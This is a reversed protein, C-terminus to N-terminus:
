VAGPGRDLTEHDAGWVARLACPLSCMGAAVIRAAVRAAISPIEDKKLDREIAERDVPRGCRRCQEPEGM